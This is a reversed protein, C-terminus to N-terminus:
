FRARQRLSAPSLTQAQSQLSQRVRSVLKIMEKVGLARLYVGMDDVRDLTVNDDVQRLSAIVAMDTASLDDGSGFILKTFTDVIEMESPRSDGVLDGMNRQLTAM